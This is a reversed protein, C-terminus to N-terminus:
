CSCPVDTRFCVPITQWYKCYSESYDQQCKKHGETCDVPALTTTAEPFANNMVWAFRVAGKALQEKVVEIRQTYYSMPLVDKNVVEKGDVHKYANNCALVASESAMSNVCKDLGNKECDELWEPVKDYFAGGEALEKEIHKVTISWFMDREAVPTDYNFDQQIYEDGYDSGEFEDILKEDWVKHLNANKHDAFEYDVYIRNGGLDSHRGAHLPQHVDGMFHTLFKLAVQRQELPLSEDAVQRTYNKIAGVVCYDDKCDRAYVFQCNDTDAYHLGSTWRWKDKEPGYRISDAWTSYDALRTGAGMIDAVAKNANGNFYKAATDAVTAHGDPGWAFATPFTLAILSTRNIM